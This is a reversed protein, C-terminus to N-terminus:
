GAWLGKAAPWVLAMVIAFPALAWCMEVVMSAHFNAQAASKQQRHHRWISGLMVAFVGVFVLLCGLMLWGRLGLGDGM